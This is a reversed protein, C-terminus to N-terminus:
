NILAHPIPTRSQIVRDVRCHIFISNCRVLSLFPKIGIMSTFPTPQLMSFQVHEDSQLASQVISRHSNPTNKSVDAPMSHDIEKALVPKAFNSCMQLEHTIVIRLRLKSKCQKATWSLALGNMFAAMPM